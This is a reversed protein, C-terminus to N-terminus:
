TQGSSTDDPLEFRLVAAVGDAVSGDLVQAHADTRACAALLGGDDEPPEGDGFFITDVAGMDAAQGVARSGEVARNQAKAEEFRERHHDEREAAVDGALERLATTLAEEAAEDVTGGSETQHCIRGLAEPLADQVATRGQVEGALVLADPQWHKAVSQLHEAIGRANQEVAEDARRQIQKHSLAQGRPKSVSEVTDPDVVEEPGATHERDAVAVERRVVARDQDVIAVLLRVSRAWERIFPGLEPEGTLHAADGAGLAADWPENLLVGDAGAVLVRGDAQVEGFREDLIAEDLATLVDQSAGAESLRGRLDDWRLRVQKEADEAPSRGEMYVTALPGDAEYVERVAQLRM